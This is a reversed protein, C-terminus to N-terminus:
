NSIDKIQSTLGRLGNEFELAFPANYENGKVLRVEAFYKDDLFICLKDEEWKLTPQMGFNNFIFECVYSFTKKKMDVLVSFLTLNENGNELKAFLFLDNYHRIIDIASDSSIYEEIEINNSLQMIKNIVEMNIQQGYPIYKKMSSIIDDNLRCVDVTYRGEGIHVLKATLTINKKNHYTQVYVDSNEKYISELKVVGQFQDDAIIRNDFTSLLLNIRIYYLVSNHSKQLLYVIEIFENDNDLLICNEITASFRSFDDLDVINNTIYEVLSEISNFKMKVRGVQIRRLLSLYVNKKLYEKPTIGFKNKFKKIFYSSSNFGCKFATDSITDDTSKIHLIAETFRRTVIYDPISMGIKTNFERSLYYKSYNLEKAIENLSIDLILNSEIYEIVRHLENMKDSGQQDVILTYCM